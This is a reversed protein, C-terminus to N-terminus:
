SSASVQSFLHFITREAEASVTEAAEGDTAPLEMSALIHLCRDVMAQKTEAESDGREMERAILELLVAKLGLIEGRSTAATGANGAGDDSM